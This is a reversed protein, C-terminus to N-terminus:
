RSPVRPGGAPTGRHRCAARRRLPAARAANLGTAAKRRMAICGIIDTPQAPEFPYGLFHRKNECYFVFGPQRVPSRKGVLQATAAPDIDPAIGVEIPRQGVRASEDGALVALDAIALPRVPQVVHGAVAREDVAAVLAHLARVPQAVAVPQLDALVDDRYRDVAVLRLGAPLLRRRAGVIAALEPDRVLGRRRDMRPM